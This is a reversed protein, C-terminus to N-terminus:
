KGWWQRYYPCLRENIYNRSRDNLGYNRIDLNKLKNEKNLVQSSKRGSSFKIITCNGKVWHCDEIGNSDCVFNIDGLISFVTFQLNKGDVSPTISLDELCEM